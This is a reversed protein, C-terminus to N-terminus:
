LKAKLQIEGFNKEIAALLLNIERARKGILM